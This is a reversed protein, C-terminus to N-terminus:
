GRSGRHNVDIRERIVELASFPFSAMKCQQASGNALLALIHTRMTEATLESPHLYDCFGQTCLVQARILQEERPVTRPVILFPKGQSAIECVTNYGGMSVVVQAAGILAEMYRHFKLTMFGMAESRKLVDHYDHDSIFPGTVIAVRLGEPVGGLGPEFASLFTNVVPHGDGGGGITVLVLKDNESLGLASRAALVDSASPVRRRIYGTFVMKAAIDPPIEYERIPDYFERCGYV